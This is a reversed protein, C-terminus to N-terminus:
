LLFRAKHLLDVFTCFNQREPPEATWIYLMLATSFMIESKEWFIEGKQANEDSTNAIINTVLATIDNESRIYKFPNYCDSHMMTSKNINLVKIDYGKEKLYAGCDRLLEGKPDTVVVSGNLNYLNPKVFHFSKGAGSGGMVFINNNIRTFKNNTSFRINQSFIRNRHEDEPDSYKKNIAKWSGWQATGYEKGHMFKKETVKQIVYCSYVLLFGFIARVIYINHYFQEFPHNLAYEFKSSWTLITDGAEWTGGAYYGLIVVLIGGILYMIKDSNKKDLDLM